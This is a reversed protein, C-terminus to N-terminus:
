DGISSRVLRAAADCKELRSAIDCLRTTADKVSSSISYHTADDKEAALKDGAGSLLEEIRHTFLEINDITGVLTVQETQTEM